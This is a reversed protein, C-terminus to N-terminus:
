RSDSTRVASPGARWGAQSWSLAVLGSSPTLGMSLIELGGSCPLHAAREASAATAAASQASV